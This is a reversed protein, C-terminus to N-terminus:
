RTLRYITVSGVQGIQAIKKPAFYSVDWQTDKLPECQRECVVILSPTRKLSDKEIPKKGYVELFYRYTYDTAWNPSSTLRYQEPQVHPAIKLAIDRATDIQNNEKATFFYYGQYNLFLFSAMFITVVIKGLQSTLLISLFYAILLYYLPYLFGFYHPHKASLYFGAGLLSLVFFILLSRLNDRRRAVFILSLVFLALIISSFILNSTTHFAYQNFALFSELLNTLKNTGIAM